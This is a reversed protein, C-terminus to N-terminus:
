HEYVYEFVLKRIIEDFQITMRVTTRHMRSNYLIIDVVRYPLLKQSAKNHYNIPNYSPFIKSTKVCICKPLSSCFSPQNEAPIQPYQKETNTYLEAIGFSLTAFKM